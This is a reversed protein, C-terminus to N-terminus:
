PNHHVCLYLILAIGLSFYLLPSAWDICSVHLRQGSLVAYYEMSLIKNFLLVDLFPLAFLSCVFAYGAVCDTDHGLMM